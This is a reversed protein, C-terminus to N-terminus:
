KRPKTWLEISELMFDRILDYNENTEETVGLDELVLSTLETVTDLCFVSRLDDIAAASVKSEKGNYGIVFSNGEHLKRETEFKTALWHNKM